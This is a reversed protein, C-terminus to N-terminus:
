NIHKTNIEQLINNNVIKKAMYTSIFTTIGYLYNYLFKMM